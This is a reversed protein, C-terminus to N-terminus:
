KELIHSRVTGRMKHSPDEDPPDFCQGDPLGVCGEAEFPPQGCLIAPAFGERRPDPYFITAEERPDGDTVLLKGWRIRHVLWPVKM